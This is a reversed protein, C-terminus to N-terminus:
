VIMIQEKKRHHFVMVPVKTHLVLKHTISKGFLKDRFDREHHSLVLLDTAQTELYEELKAEVNEGGIIEYSLNPYLIKKDAEEIFRRMEGRAKAEDDEFVHLINIQANFPSAIEILRDITDVDIDSYNSAFTIKKVPHFLAGEPVAIVPCHARDIVRSTNSGMILEKLGSAGHTGMVILDVNREEAEKIIGDVALDLRAVRESVIGGAHEIKTQLGKLKDLWKEENLRIEDDPVPVDIYSISPEMHYVHLLIIKAQEKRALEIAYTLANEARESFDTPVLITKM